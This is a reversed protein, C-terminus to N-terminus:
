SRWFPKRIEPALDARTLGVDRLMRDEAMSLHHRETAREQWLLLQQLTASMARRALRSPLFGAGAVPGAMVPARVIEPLADTRLTNM